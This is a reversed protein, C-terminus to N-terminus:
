QAQAAARARPFERAGGGGELMYAALTWPGGAFGILPLRGDLAQATTRLTALVYSLDSEPDPVTLGRADALRAVPRRFRPGEGPTFELGLGMADPITLIDAFVIAADLDFRRLPQPTVEAALEPTKLLALFSGARERLERYEPLYRGAQRMLWVPRRAVQERRLARVLDHGSNM